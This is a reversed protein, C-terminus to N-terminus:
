KDTNTKEPTEHSAQKKSYKEARKKSIKQRETLGHEATKETAKKSKAEPSTRTTEQMIAWIDTFINGSAPTCSATKEAGDACVDETFFRSVFARMLKVARSQEEARAREAGLMEDFHSSSRKVGVLVPAFTDAIKKNIFSEGFRHELLEVGLSLAPSQMAREILADAMRNNPNETLEVSIEDDNKIFVRIMRVNPLEPLVLEIRYEVEGDSNVVAEGLTRVIYREGRFDLVAEKYEYLGIELRYEIGSESFSLYLEEHSREFRVFELRSDLNNQMGRIFLPLIGVNNQSFAYEGLLRDWKDDYEDRNKVGLWYLFGRRKKLPVVFRRSDFFREERESLVRADRRDFDSDHIDCGLHRRIIELAPSDQFLENNGCIMVVVLRNKPCVWVNQGLMGNFLVDEDNRGVWLHYGYNFDGNVIPSIAQKKTSAEIWRESLIQRGEFVGSQLVLQGLKAWSEMSMYLGWGGKEIGEPSLEWFYNSIYLPDFLRPRLYELLGRGSIKAVIRALIYSNMSNYEFEAGPTFKVPSAFFAEAWKTETVSGAEGFTVGSTMSLLHEVTILPFNKDKYQIDPFIEVLRANLKLKGEDCLMGIAMGTVTKSMSHSLRWMSVDYGDKTCESIVEGDAIIMLGQMNARREAELACLMNYIRRSSIGHREPISRSFYKYESSSIRTKQPYYPVVSPSTQSGFALSTLLNVARKKWKEVLVGGRGKNRLIIKASM